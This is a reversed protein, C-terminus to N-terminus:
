RQIGYAANLAAALENAQAEDLTLAVGIDSAGCVATLYADCAASASTGPCADELDEPLPWPAITSGDDGGATFVLREHLAHSIALADDLPLANIRAVGAADLTPACLGWGDFLAALAADPGDCVGFAAGAGDPRPLLYATVEGDDSRRAHVRWYARDLPHECDPMWVDGAESVSYCAIDGTGTAECDGTPNTAGAGCGAASTAVMAWVAGNGACSRRVVIQEMDRGIWPLAAVLQGSSGETM